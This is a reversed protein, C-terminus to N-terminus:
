GRHGRHLNLPRAILWELLTRGNKSCNCRQCAPVVNDITHPGGRSLPTIHEMSMKAPRACYACLGQFEGIRDTWEQASVRSGAIGARRQARQARVTEPHDARWHRHSTQARGPHAARWRRSSAQVQERHAEYYRRSAGRNQEPHAAKWRRTAVRRGERHELEWRRGIERRREPHSRDWQQVAARKRELHALRWRRTSGRRQEPHTAAWQTSAARHCPRCWSSLGSTASKRPPFHEVTSPYERGCKSCRKMAGLTPAVGLGGCSSVMGVTDRCGQCGRATAALNGGDPEGEPSRAGGGLPFM